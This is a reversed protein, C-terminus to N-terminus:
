AQMKSRIEGHWIADGWGQTQKTIIVPMRHHCAMDIDVSLRSLTVSADLAFITSDHVVSHNYIVRGTGACQEKQALCACWELMAQTNHQTCLTIM